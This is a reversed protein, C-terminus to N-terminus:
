AERRGRPHPLRGEPQIAAAVRFQGSGCHTCRAPEIRSVRRPFAAVWEILAPQPSPARLAARAAALHTHKHAAGLLGCHRIRKFGGPLVHQFSREVFDTGTLRLTRQKGSKGDAHVRLLVERGDIGLIRENSIAVRHTYRGFYELVVEPGGLAEFRCPV